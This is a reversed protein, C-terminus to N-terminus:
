LEGRSDPSAYPPYFNTSSKTSTFTRRYSRIDCCPDRQHVLSISYRDMDLSNRAIGTSPGSEIRDMSWAFIMSTDIILSTAMTLPVNQVRRTAQRDTCVSRVHGTGRRSVAFLIIACQRYENWCWRLSECHVSIPSRSRQRYRDFDCPSLYVSARLVNRNIRSLSHGYALFSTEEEGVTFHEIESDFLGDDSEHVSLRRVKMTMRGTHKEWLAVGHLAMPKPKVVLM